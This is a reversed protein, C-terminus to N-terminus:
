VNSTNLSKLSPLKRYMVNVGCNIYRKLKEARLQMQNKIDADINMKAEDFLGSKHHNDGFFNSCNDIVNRNKDIVKYYYIEGNLYDEYNQLERELIGKAWDQIKVGPNYREFDEETNYYMKRFDEKTMYIWGLQGFNYKTSLRHCGAGNNIYYVPLIAYIPENDFMLGKKIELLDDTGPQYDSEDKIQVPRISLITTGHDWDTRPNMCYMKKAIKIKYGRYVKYEAPSIM